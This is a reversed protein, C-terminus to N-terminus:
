LCTCCIAKNSNKELSNHEKARKEKERKAIEKRSWSKFQFRFISNIMMWIEVMAKDFMTLYSEVLACSPEHKPDEEFKSCVSPHIEFFHKKLKRRMSYPLNIENNASERVFENFITQSIILFSRFEAGEKIQEDILSNYSTHIEQLYLFQLKFIPVEGEICFFPLQSCPHSSDKFGKTEHYELMCHRFIAAHVFFLLNELAFCQGLHTALFDYEGDDRSLLFRHLPVNDTLKMQIRELPDKTLLDYGKNTKEIPTRPFDRDSEKEKPPPKEAKEDDERNEDADDDDYLDVDVAHMELSANIHDLQKSVFTNTNPSIPGSVNYYNGPLTKESGGVLTGVNSSSGTGSGSEMSVMTAMTQTSSNSNLKPLERANIVSSSSANKPMETISRGLKQNEKEKEEEMQKEKAKQAAVERRFRHRNAHEHKRINLRRKWQM